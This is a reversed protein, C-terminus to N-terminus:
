CAMARALGHLTGDNIIERDWGRWDDLQGDSEHEAKRTNSPMTIRWVEGAHRRILPLENERFRMDDIVALEAGRNELTTLRSDMLDVWLNPNVMKRLCDTAVVRMVDRTSKGGWIPLPEDKRDHLLVHALEPGYVCELLPKLMWRLPDAFSIVAGGKPTSNALIRAVTSKGHGPTSSYLGIIRM